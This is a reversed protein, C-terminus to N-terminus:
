YYIGVYIALIILIVMSILLIFDVMKYFRIKREKRNEVSRIIFDDVSKWLDISNDREFSFIFEKGKSTIIFHQLQFDAFGERTLEYIHKEIVLARIQLLNVIDPTTWTGIMLLKLIAYDILELEVGRKMIVNNNSDDVM